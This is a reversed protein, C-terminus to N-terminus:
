KDFAYVSTRISRPVIQVLVSLVDSMIHFMRFMRM